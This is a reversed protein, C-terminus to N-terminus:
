CDLRGTSFCQSKKFWYNPDQPTGKRNIADLTDQAQENAEAQQLCQSFATTGRQFGYGDCQSMLRQLRARVAQEQQAQIQERSACSVLIVLPILVPLLKCPIWCKKM